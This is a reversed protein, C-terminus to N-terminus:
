ESELDERQFFFDGGGGGGAGLIICKLAGMFAIALRISVTYPM